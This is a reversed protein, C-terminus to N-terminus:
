LERGKRVAQRIHRDSPNAGSIGEPLVGDPDIPRAREKQTQEMREMILATRQATSIHDAGGSNMVQTEQRLADKLEMTEPLKEQASRRLYSILGAGLGQDVVFADAEFERMREMRAIKHLDFKAHQISTTSMVSLAEIRATDDLLDIGPYKEFLEANVKAEKKRDKHVLHAIEHAIVAKLEEKTAQAWLDNDIIISLNKSEDLIVARRIQENVARPDAVDGAAVRYRNDDSLAGQDNVFFTKNGYLAGKNADSINGTGIAIFLPRELQAKNAMKQVFNQIDEVDSRDLHTFSQTPVEQLMKHARQEGLRMLMQFDEKNAQNWQSPRSTILTEMAAREATSFYQQAGTELQRREDGTLKWATNHSGQAFYHFVDAQNQFAEKRDLDHSTPDSPLCLRQGQYELLSLLPYMRKEAPFVKEADPEPDRAIQVRGAKDQPAPSALYDLARGMYAQRERKDPPSSGGALGSIRAAEISQQLISFPLEMIGGYWGINAIKHLVSLASVYLKLLIGSHQATICGLVVLEHGLLKSVATAIDDVTLSFRRPARIAHQLSPNFQRINKTALMALNRLAFAEPQFIHVIGLRMGFGGDGFGITREFGNM